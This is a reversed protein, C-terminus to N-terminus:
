GRGILSWEPPADTPTPFSGEALEVRVGDPDTVFCVRVEKRGGPHFPPAEPVIGEDALEVLLSDLDGVGLALHGSGPTRDYDAPAEDNITLEITVDREADTGLYLLYFTPSINLCGVVRLGLKEYFAVSAGADRARINFHAIRVGM